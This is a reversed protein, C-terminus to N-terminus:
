LGARTSDQKNRRMDRWTVLAFIRTGQTEVEVGEISVSGDSTVPLMALRVAEHVEKRVDNTIKPPAKFGFTPSSMRSGRLNRICLWVRQATDSMGEESGMADVAFDRTDPDIKISSVAGTTSQSFGADVLAPSSVPLGVGAPSSGAPSFGFGTTM